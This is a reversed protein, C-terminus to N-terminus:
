RALKKVTVSRLLYKNYVNGDSELLFNFGWYNVFQPDDIQWTKTHWDQNDPVTYWTGATKFGAPSEYVLKFGANDNEPNRRVVVTIEIPTADYSLFNPDVIFANGGPVNGARASGGYAVVAKAVHAGSRTHLGQEKVTEGYEISVTRAQSYDGGWPFPKKRNAQAQEIWAQPVDLMLLPAVDLPFARRIGLAGTLPDVIKM